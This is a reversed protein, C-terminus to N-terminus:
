PSWRGPKRGFVEAMRRGADNLAAARRRPKGANILNHLNDPDLLGLRESQMTGFVPRFELLTKLSEPDLRALKLAAEREPKLILGEEL